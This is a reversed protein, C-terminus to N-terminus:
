EITLLFESLSRSQNTRPCSSVTFTSFASNSSCMNAKFNPRLVSYYKRPVLVTAALVTASLAPLLTSPSSSPM